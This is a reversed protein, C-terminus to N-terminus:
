PILVGGLSSGASIIGFAFARKKFFWTGIPNMGGYFLASSGLASLVAQSLFFQYYESSVSALMLGLVHCVTGCLVLYRPGFNDFLKGFLPAGMFMMFTETSSIWAVSSPPYSSLQNRQYYDQFVGICNIWGMSAFLCCWSGVVVTWAKVGGDPFDAPNPGAPPAANATAVEVGKEIDQKGEASVVQSDGGMNASDVPRGKVDAVSSASSDVMTKIQGRLLLNPPPGLNLLHLPVHNQFPESLTKRM